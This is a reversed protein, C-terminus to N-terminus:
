FEFNWSQGSSATFQGRSVLTEHSNVDPLFNDRLGWLKIVRYLHLM